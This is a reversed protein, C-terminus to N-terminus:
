SLCMSGGIRACLDDREEKLSELELQLLERGTRQQQWGAQAAALEQQVRGHVQQLQQHQRALADHALQGEELSRIWAKCGAPHLPCLTRSPEAATRAAVTPLGAPAATSGPWRGVLDLELRAKGERAERLEEALQRQDAEAAVLRKEAAAWGAKASGLQLELDLLQGKVQLYEQQM